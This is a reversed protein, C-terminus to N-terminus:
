FRVRFQATISRGFSTYTVQDQGNAGVTTDCGFPVLAQNNACAGPRAGGGLAVIKDNLNRGILSLEYRDDASYLKIAADLLWYSDQEYPNLTATWPYGDNYRADASLDIRWDAGVPVDYSFGIAGAIEASGAADQGKLNQGSANIFDKEYGTDTYALNGRLSLGDVPTLWLWDTEVGRSRLQSANFTEFQIIVSNFLQVQLDDYDYTFASANVRLTNDLFRGKMGVEFGSAEESDYYLFDFGTFTPSNPNLANTPLASNDVGGSKFGEKYSGYVSVQDNVYYNLAIEPSVNDDDFELGEVSSFGGFGFLQAGAHFYPLDIRGDKQEDTYRAGATLELRENINWYVAFFASYVETDLYHIKTYDSGRGTAPDVGFTTGPTPDFGLAASLAQGGPTANLFNPVLALNFAYQYAEFRQEVDQYYAGLMFNVPGDFTSRLTLEQSLSEYTNRHMGGFVGANGDYVELDIHDLDVWGTVARLSFNDSFSWDARLSLFDTEQELFPVGDGGGYPLGRALIPNLDNLSTNGNLKCDDFGPFVVFAASASPIATPQVVGEPCTEEMTAWPGDNEYESYAYKLRLRLLDTPEWVLTLRYNKSEEGRWDNEVGPFINEWREDAKSMGVALRAGFTDTIPGSIIGEYYMQDFETEHGIMGELEFEDGPDKSTVSVVGATASKGFYLSQPGKLIEIQGMDMYANHIFRGINVVVDDVNIAVSQDFAASIDSSGIGRLRLVSGNGSGTTFIQFNPVLSAAESLKTVNYRKLDEEGLAAVTVPVDQLTEAQQRATVIIEEIVRQEQAHALAVPVLLALVLPLHWGSPRYNM